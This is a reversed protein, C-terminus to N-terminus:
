TDGHDFEEGEARMIHVRYQNQEPSAHLRFVTVGLEILHEVAQGVNAGSWVVEGTHDLVHHLQKRRTFPVNTMLVYM